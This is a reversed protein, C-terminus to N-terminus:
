HLLRCELLSKVIWLRPETDRDMFVFLKLLAATRHPNAMGAGRDRTPIQTLPLVTLQSQLLLQSQPSHVSHVITFCFCPHWHCSHFANLLVNTEWMKHQPNERPSKEWLLKNKRKERWGFACNHPHTQSARYGQQTCRFSLSFTCRSCPFVHGCQNNHQWCFWHLSSSGPKVVACSNSAPQHKPRSGLCFGWVM